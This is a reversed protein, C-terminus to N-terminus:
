EEEEEPEGEEEGEAKKKKPKRLLERDFLSYLKMNEQKEM